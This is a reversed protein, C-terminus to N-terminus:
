VGLDCLLPSLIAGQPHAETLRVVLLSQLFSCITGEIDHKRAALVMSGFSLVISPTTRNTCLEKEFGNVRCIKRFLVTNSTTLQVRKPSPTWCINNKNHPLLQLRRASLGQHGVTSSLEVNNLMHSSTFKFCICRCFSFFYYHYPVKTNYDYTFYERYNLM